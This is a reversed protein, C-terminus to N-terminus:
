LYAATVTYPNGTCRLWVPEAVLTFRAFEKLTMCHYEGRTKVCPYRVPITGLLGTMPMVAKFSQKLGRLAKRRNGFMM